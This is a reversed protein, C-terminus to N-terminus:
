RRDVYARDIGAHIMEDWRMAKEGAHMAARYGMWGLLCLILAISILVYRRM